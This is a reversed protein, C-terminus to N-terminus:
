KLKEAKRGTLNEWRQVIVDCYHPDLEMMYCKRNTQECAILTTGSGGFPEIVGDGEDTMAQIYESPLAVPFVAPHLSRVTGKESRIELVSEMKKYKNSMDGTSSMKTSGDIQRVTRDRAARVNEAKKEHTRNLHFFENGFVFIWEHRIPFFAKQQGISGCDMKDWVNWAMLKYGASHAEDIYANWYPVIELEKTQIGLNVVQFAAFPKYVSIFRSLNDVSM